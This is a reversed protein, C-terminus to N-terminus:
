TAVLHALFTRTCCVSLPWAGASVVKGLNTAGDVFGLGTEHLDVRLQPGRVPFEVVAGVDSQLNWYIAIVRLWPVADGVIAQVVCAAVREGDHFDLSAGAVRALGIFLEPVVDGLDGLLPGKGGEPEHSVAMVDPKPLDARSIRAEDGPKERGGVQLPQLEQALVSSREFRRSRDQGCGKGSPIRFAECAEVAGVIRRGGQMRAGFGDLDGSESTIESRVMM